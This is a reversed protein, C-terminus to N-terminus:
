HFKRYEAMLMTVPNNELVWRVVMSEVMSERLQPFTGMMTVADLLYTLIYTLIGGFVVGAFIGLLGNAQKVLPLRSALDLSAGLMGILLWVLFFTAVFALAGIILNALMSTIYSELSDVQFLQYVETNNNRILLTRLYPPLPMGQLFMIQDEPSIMNQVAPDMSLFGSVREGVSAQIGTAGTLVATVMPYIFFALVLSFLASSLKFLTKVLGNRYSVCIIALCFVLLLMDLLNM